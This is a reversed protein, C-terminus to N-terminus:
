VKLTKIARVMDRKGHPGNIKTVTFGAEQMAKRVITKSCYTILVGNTEILRFMKKFVETTWVEPQVTPAFADFYVLNFRKNASYNILSNNIKKFTFYPTIEVEKNWECNHLQNFLIKLGPRQLQDCYNLSEFTSSHLPYPELTEYYIHQHKDETESLTLLANLGTGFGMEFISLDGTDNNKEVMYRLGAEIFVHISEQIAGHMSHYTVNIEPISVSHSGDKTIIIERQM